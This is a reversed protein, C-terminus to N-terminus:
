EEFFAKMSHMLFEPCHILKNTTKDVFVLTTSGTTLLINSENRIEYDFQMRVAPKKKIIVKITLLDDYKAPKIFSSELHIVPMMIGSEEMGRYTFGMSRLSETRAVEFYQAFNGHYVYGMQDTESYRVRIHTEFIYM